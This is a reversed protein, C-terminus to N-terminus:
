LQTNSEIKTNAVKKYPSNVTKKNKIKEIVLSNDHEEHYESKQLWTDDKVEGEPMHLLPDATMDGDCWNHISFHIEWESIEKLLTYGYWSFSSLDVPEFDILSYDFADDTGDGNFDMANHTFGNDRGDPHVGMGYQLRIVKEFQDTLVIPTGIPRCDFDECTFSGVTTAKKCQEKLEDITKQVLMDIDEEPIVNKTMNNNTRCEGIIWCNDALVQIIKAKIESRKKDCLAFCYDRYDQMEKEVMRFSILDETEGTEINRRTFILPEFSNDNKLTEDAEWVVKPIVIGQDISEMWEISNIYHECTVDVTAEWDEQKRIVTNRLMDWFTFRQDASWNQYYETCIVRGIGCFEDVIVKSEGTAPYNEYLVNLSSNCPTTNYVFTNTSGIETFGYYDNVVEICDNPDILCYRSEFAQYDENGPGNYNFYKFAFVPNLINQFLPKQTNKDILADGQENVAWNELPMFYHIGESKYHTDYENAPILSFIIPFPKHYGNEIDVLLYDFSTNKDQALPAGDMLTLLKAFKYGSCDLFEKVLHMDPLEAQFIEDSDGVRLRRMRKSVKRKAIWRTLFFGGKFSDDFHSDHGKDYKDESPDNGQEKDYQQSVNTKKTPESGIDGCSTQEKLKNVVGAWCKWLEECDYHTKAVDTDDDLKGAKYTDNVMHYVMENFYGPKWGAMYKSYFIDIAEDISEQSEPDDAICKALINIAFLEFDPWDLHNIVGDGNKDEDYVTDFPPTWNIPIEMNQCCPTNLVALAIDGAANDYLVLSYAEKNENYFEKFKLSFANPYSTILNEGNIAISIQVLEDFFDQLQEITELNDLMGTILSTIPTVQEAVSENNASTSANVGLSRLEKQVVYAGKDLVIEETAIQIDDGGITGGDQLSKVTEFIVETTNNDNLKFVKFHVEYQCDLVTSVCVEDLKNKKVTYGINVTTQDQQISIRKNSVFADNVKVNTSVTNKVPINFSPSNLDTDNFTLGTAIVQGEKNTYSVTAVNNPDYTITKFVNTHNPAEDGFLTILEEQSATEYVYRTSHNSGVQHTVGVGGQEKIRGTGDNYFITRTFPYGEANAINGNNKYYSFAGTENMPNPNWINSENQDDFDKASYLQGNLNKTLGEQYALIKNNVPVPLTVLAARGLNDLITQTVVTVNKSPLYTNTQRVQNLTNAYTVLEKIKGDEAFVKSINYNRNADVDEFYFYPAVSNENLEITTGQQAHAPWVGKNKNNALGGGYYDSIPRVRWVYYGSGETISYHISKVNNEVNAIVIASAAKNWDLTSTIEKESQIKLTDKNYLRLLQFEYDFLPLNDLWKFKVTKSISADSLDIQTGDLAIASVNMGYLIEYSWKFSLGEALYQNANGGTVKVEVENFKLSENEGANIWNKTDLVHQQILYSEPQDINTNLRFLGSDFIGEVVVGDKKAILQVTANIETTSEIQNTKILQNIDLCLRVNAKHIKKNLPVEYDISFSTVSNQTPTIDGVDHAASTFRQQANLLFASLLLSVIIIYKM